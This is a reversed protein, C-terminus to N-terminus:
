AQQFERDPPGSGFYACVGNKLVLFTYVDNVSLKDVSTKGRGLGEAARKGRPYQLSPGERGDVKAQELVGHARAGLSSCANSCQAPCIGPLGRHGRSGKDGKHGTYLVYSPISITRLCSISIFSVLIAIWVLVVVM